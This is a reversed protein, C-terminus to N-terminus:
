VESNYCISVLVHFTKLWPHTKCVELLKFGRQRSKDPDNYDAKKLIMLTITYFLLAKM